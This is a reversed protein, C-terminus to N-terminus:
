TGGLSILPEQLGAHGDDTIHGGATVVSRSFSPLFKEIALFHSTVPIHIVLFSISFPMAHCM